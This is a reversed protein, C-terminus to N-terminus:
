TNRRAFKKDSNHIEEPAFKNMKVQIGDSCEVAKYYRTFALHPNGWVRTQKSVKITWSAIVLDNVRPNPQRQAAATPLSVNIGGELAGLPTRGLPPEQNIHKNGRLLRVSMQEWRKDIVLPSLLLHCRAQGSQDLPHNFQVVGTKPCAVADFLKSKPPNV